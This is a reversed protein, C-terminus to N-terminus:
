RLSLEGSDERRKTFFATCAADRLRDHRRTRLTAQHGRGIEGCHHGDRSRRSGAAGVGSADV